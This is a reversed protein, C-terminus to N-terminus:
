TMELVARYRLTGSRLKQMAENVQSLPFKEYEAGINHQAAFKLMQKMTTKPGISGGGIKKEQMILSAVDVTLEDAIGVLALTGRPALIGVYRQWDIDGPATSIIFDLKGTLTEDTIDTIFHDAGIAMASEKKDESKSFAYVECGLAHAFKIAFHGLGGIGVVGVKMGSKVGYLVMPNYVTIGGCLMPATAVLELNKPIEFIFDAPVQIYDAFGGHRGVCTANGQEMNVCCNEFGRDCAACNRCQNCQWGLGVTMGEQLHKVGAGLAEVTGIIEHGPVFPYETM